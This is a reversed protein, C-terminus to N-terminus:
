NIEIIEFSLNLWERKVDNFIRTLPNYGYGEEKVNIGDYQYHYGWDWSELLSLYPIQIALKINKYQRTNKAVNNTINLPDVLIFENRVLQYHHFFTVKQLDANEDIIIPNSMDYELGYYYLIDYFLKGLNTISIDNGRKNQVYLFNIILLIVGYSSLGGKYPDNLFAKQLITKLAFTM